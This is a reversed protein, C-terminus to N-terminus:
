NMKMKHHEHTESKKADNKSDSNDAIEKISSVKFNDEGNTGTVEIMIHNQRETKRVLALAEKDGNKDFKIYKGESMVGYGSAICDDELACSKSHKAAKEMAIKPGKTVAMSACMEDMLYGQITTNKATKEVKGQAFLSLSAITLLALAVYFNTKKM